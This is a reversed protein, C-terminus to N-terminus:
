YNGPHCNSNRSSRLLDHTKHTDSNKEVIIMQNTPISKEEDSEENKMKIPELEPFWRNVAMVFAKLARLCSITNKQEFNDLSILLKQVIVLSQDFFESDNCRNLFQQFVIPAFPYYQSSTSALTIRHVLYSGYKSMTEPVTSSDTEGLSELGFQAAESTIWSNSATELLLFFLIEILNKSKQKKKVEFFAVFKALCICILSELCSEFNESNKQNKWFLEELVELFYESIQYIRSEEISNGDLSNALILILSCKRSNSTSHQIEEFILDIFEPNWLIKAIKEVNKSKVNFQLPFKQLHECINSTSEARTIMLRKLDIKISDTLSRILNVVCNARTVCLMELDERIGFLVSILMEFTPEINTGSRVIVPIRNTLEDLKEFMRSKIFSRIKLYVDLIIPDLELIPHLIKIIELLKIKTSTQRHNVLNGCIIKLYERVNKVIQHRSTELDVLIAKLDESYGNSQDEDSADSESLCRITIKGFIELVMESIEFFREDSRLVNFLKSLIGPAVTALSQIGCKDCFKELLRASRKRVEVDKQPDLLIKLFKTIQKSLVILNKPSNFPNSLHNSTQIFDFLHEIFDSFELNTPSDCFDFEALLIPQLNIYQLSPLNAPNKDLIMLCLDFLRFLEVKELGTLENANQNQLLLLKSALLVAGACAVREEKSVYESGAEIVRILPQILRTAEIGAKSCSLINALSSHVTEFLGSM